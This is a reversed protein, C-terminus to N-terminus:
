DMYKIRSIFDRIFNAMRTLVLASIVTDAMRPLDVGTGRFVTLIDVKYCFFIAVILVLTDRAIKVPKTDAMEKLATLSFIAMIAAELVIAIIFLYFVNQILIEGKM